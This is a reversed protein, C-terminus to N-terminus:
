SCLDETGDLIAVEDSMGVRQDLHLNFPGSSSSFFLCYSAAPFVATICTIRIFESSPNISQICGAPKQGYWFLMLNLLQSLSQFTVRKPATFDSRKVTSAAVSTVLVVSERYFCRLIVRGDGSSLRMSSEALGQHVGSM